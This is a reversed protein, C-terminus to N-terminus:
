RTLLEMNDEICTSLSVLWNSFLEHFKSNYKSNLFELNIDNLIENINQAFLNTALM